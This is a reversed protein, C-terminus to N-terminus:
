PAPVVELDHEFFDSGGASTVTLRITYTEPETDPNTFTHTPDQDTSPPTGDGFDWSWSTIPASTRWRNTPSASTSRAPAAEPEGTFAATPAACPTADGVTITQTAEHSGGPTTATLTM